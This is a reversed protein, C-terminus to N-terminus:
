LVVQSVTDIAERFAPAYRMEFNRPWPLTVSVEACNSAAVGTLIVVREALLVAEEYDHSAFVFICDHKSLWSGLYDQILRKRAFDVASLPEDLVLIAPNSLLARILLFIQQEGGSLEYPYKELDLHIKFTDCLLEYESLHFSPPLERSAKTTRPMALALNAQLSFWPFLAQRYDQPLYALSQGAPTPSRVVSGSDPEVVALILGLLTTKGRGNAGVLAIRDGSRVSLSFGEFVSKTGARSTYRKTVDHFEVFPIPKM